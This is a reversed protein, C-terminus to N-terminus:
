PGTYRIAVGLTDSHTPQTSANTSRSATNKRYQPYIKWEESGITIIEGPDLNDIMLFRINKLQAVPTVGNSARNILFKIPILISSNNFTNPSSCLLNACYHPGYFDGNDDGCDANWSSVSDIATSIFYNLYTSNTTDKGVGGPFGAILPAYTSNGINFGSASLGNSFVSAYISNEVLSGGSGGSFWNGSGGIEPMDSQGFSLQQYYDTNYNIVCFVENDAFIHIEYNIPFVIAVASVNTPNYIKAYRPCPTTLTSGSQGNGGEINIRDTSSSTLKIFIGDKSLIGSTLAWGETVCANEIATQLATFSSATGSYYAM